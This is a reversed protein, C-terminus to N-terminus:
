REEEVEHAWYWAGGINYAALDSTLPELRGANEHGDRDLTEVCIRRAGSKKVRYLKNIVFVM